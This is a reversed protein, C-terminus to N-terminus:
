WFYGFLLTNKIACKVHAVYNTKKLSFTLFFQTMDSKRFFYILTRMKQIFFLFHFLEFQRPIKLPNILSFLNDFHISEKTVKDRKIQKVWIFCKEVEFRDLNVSVSAATRFWIISKHTWQVNILDYVKNNWIQKSWFSTLMIFIIGSEHGVM